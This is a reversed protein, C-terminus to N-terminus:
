LGRRARNALMIHRVTLANFLLILIYPTLPNLLHHVWFFAVWGPLTFFDPKTACGWPIGDMTGYPQYKFYFPVNRLVSVVCVTTIVMAATKETCYRAKLNYYCIAVFRDFTFAITLWVSCDIAAYGLTGNVSCVATYSLFSFPFYSYYLSTLIIGFIVVLLDAAAMSVLYLSIGKSLDCKGCSLIVITVLNAPICIIVLCNEFVFLIQLIVPGQM